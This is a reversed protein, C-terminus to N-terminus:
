TRIERSNASDLARVAADTSLRGSVDIWRMICQGAVSEKRRESKPSEGDSHSRQDLGQPTARSRPSWSRGGHGWGDSPTPYGVIVVVVVVVFTVEIFQMRMKYCVVSLGLIWASHSSKKILFLALRKSVIIQIVGVLLFYKKTSLRLINFQKPTLM